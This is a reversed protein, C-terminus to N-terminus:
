FQFYIFSQARDVGFIVMAYILVVYVAVRAPLPWKLVIYHDSARYQLVEMVLLPLAFFALAAWSAAQSSQTAAPAWFSSLMDWAQGMTQSRFLLIGLCGFHFRLVIAIVLPLGGASMRRAFRDVRKSMLLARHVALVVGEWLGWAVFHWAAGHWLGGITMTIVLNRCAMALGRRYGGLPIFLYDRLWTSFSINWRSWFDPPSSSLLPLNFNLMFRFGMCLALGRAINSYGAFDCYIQFYFSYVGLLVQSPAHPGAHSFVTDVLRAVNDAVFVKQFLGWLIMYAGHTLGYRSVQRPSIIQTLLNTAREIPGAVLQPFFAVFLAFDELRRAPALRRRYVDITYSMSQFTYFSIGVPLVVRLTPLHPAFGMWGLLDAMSGVFFNFYKFAGLFTLNIIISATIWARRRRDDSSRDIWRALYYDAVTSAGLLGLFRWDWAGYFWYSAALLMRNQGRHPLALYLGFVLFFFLFFQFSNFLM